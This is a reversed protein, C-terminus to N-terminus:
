RSVAESMERRTCLFLFSVSCRWVCRRGTLLVSSQRWEAASGTVAREQTTEANATPQSWEIGLNPCPQSAEAAERRGGRSRM